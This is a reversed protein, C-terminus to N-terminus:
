RGIRRVAAVAMRHYLELLPGVRRALGSQLQPTDVRAEFRGIIDADPVSRTAAFRQRRGRIWDRAGWVSRYARLKETHWGERYAVALLAAETAALLPFLVALTSLRYNTLVSLLRNRELHFWKGASTGWSYHHRVRARPVFWVEWGALWTRWCLDPDEYFLFFQDCYGEVRRYADARVLMAAGTTVFAQREPGEEVPEEFRGCWAIGTLHIPNEGANVRAGDPFTVQPTVIAIRPDAIAVEALRELCSPEAWADPNLFFIWDQTTAAVAKNCAPAYGINDARLLRVDPHALRLPEELSGEPDNDIVVIEQPPRTQAKLSAVAELTLGVERYTVIVAAIGPHAPTAISSDAGVREM